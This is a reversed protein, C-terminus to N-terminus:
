GARTNRRREDTRTETAQQGGLRGLEDEDGVIVVKPGRVVSRVFHNGSTLKARFEKSTYVTANIPRQIQKEVKDLRALVEELEVKGVVMLDIDSQATEDRRALSGYVLALKIRDGLPELASGLLQFVGVTKALLSKLEPFIPSQQNARYFVQNGVRNSVVVGLDSLLCLEPALTGPQIGVTAAIQRLYYGQDPNGFLLALVRGRNRGFLVDGLGTKKPRNQKAPV